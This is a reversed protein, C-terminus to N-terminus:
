KLIMNRFRIYKETDNKDTKRLTNKIINIHEDHAFIRRIIRHIWMSPLLFSKKELIPYIKAMSNYPPFIMLFLNKTKSVSTYHMKIYNEFSGYVPSNLILSELISINSDTYPLNDFWYSALAEAYYLLNTVSAEKAYEAIKKKDTGVKRNFLYLDLILKVGAGGCLLHKQLHLLLYVYLFEPTLEFCTGKLPLAYDWVKDCFASNDTLSSHIEVHIKGKTYSTHINSSVDKELGLSSMIEDIGNYTDTLIDIDGSQRLDPSPYLNKIVTGKLPIHKIGADSLAESIMSLTLQQKAERVIAKEYCQSFKRITEPSRNTPPLATFVINETQERKAISFLADLDINEPLSEATKECVACKLLYLFYKKTNM